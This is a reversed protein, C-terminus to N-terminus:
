LFGPSLACALFALHLFENLLRSSSDSVLGGGLFAIPLSLTLLHEWGNSFVLFYSGFAFLLALFQINYKKQLQINKKGTISDYNILILITALLVMFIGVMSFSVVFEQFKVSMDFMKRIEVFDILKRNNWFRHTGLLIVPTFYGCLFQIIELFRFKRLQVISLFGWVCFLFYPFYFVTALSLYFGAMYVPVTVTSVKYTSYIHLVSLAVFTSAIIGPSFIANQPVVSVILVYIVAPILTNEKLLRHKVAIANVLLAQIYILIVAAINQMLADPLLQIFAQQVENGSSSVSYSVPEILSFIRVICVYPLLLLQTFFNNRRFVAIVIIM